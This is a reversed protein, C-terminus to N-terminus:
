RTLFVNLVSSEAANTFKYIWIRITTASSVQLVVRARKSPHALAKDSGLVTCQNNYAASNSPCTTDTLVLEIDSTAFTYDFTVEVQGANPVSVDQFSFLYFGPAVDRLSFPRSFINTTVPAPTPTPTPIPTPSSSSKGCAPLCLILLLGLFYRVNRM